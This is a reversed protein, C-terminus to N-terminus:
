LLAPLLFMQTLSFRKLLGIGDQNDITLDMFRDLFSCSLHNGEFPNEHVVLLFPHGDGSESFNLDEFSKFVWADNVDNVHDYNSTLKCGRNGHGHSSSQDITGPLPEGIETYM